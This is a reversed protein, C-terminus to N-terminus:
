ALSDKLSRQKVLSNIENTFIVQNGRNYSRREEDEEGEGRETEEVNLEVEATVTGRKLDALVEQFM